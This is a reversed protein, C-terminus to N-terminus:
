QTDEIKISMCNGEAWTRVIRVGDIMMGDITDCERLDPQGLVERRLQDYASKGCRLVYQRGRMVHYFDGIEAKERLLACLRDIMPTATM